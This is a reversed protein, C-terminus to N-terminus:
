RNPHTGRRDEGSGSSYEANWDFHQPDGGGKYPKSEPDTWTHEAISGLDVVIPQKYQM